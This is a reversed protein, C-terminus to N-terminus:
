LSLYVMLMWCKSWGKNSTSWVLALNFKKVGLYTLLYYKCQLLSHGSSAIKLWIKAIKLFTWRTVRARQRIIEIRMTLFPIDKGVLLSSVLRLLRSFRSCFCINTGSSQAMWGNGAENHLCATQRGQTKYRSFQKSTASESLLNTAESIFNPITSGLRSCWHGGKLKPHVNDSTMWLPILTLFCSFGAVGTMSRWGDLLLCVANTFLFM